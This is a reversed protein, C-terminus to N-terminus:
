NNRIHNRYARPAQNMTARFARAFGSPSEFGCRSAVEDISLDTENLLSIARLLRIQSRYGEWSLGYASKLHRRFSRESMGAHRCVEPLKRDMHDATYQLANELRANDSTPLFLDAEDEIWENCMYAMASFFATRQPSDPTHLPWRMAEKTMERMLPSVIVARIRDGPREVMEQPFYISGSRVQHLNMRHPIGAPIWAALQRPILHRGGEVEVELGGEFTCMLQHMDHFHWPGDLDVDDCPMSGACPAMGQRYTRLFVATRATGMPLRTRPGSWLEAVLNSAVRSVDEGRVMMM